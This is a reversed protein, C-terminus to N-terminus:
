KKSLREIRSLLQTLISLDDKGLYQEMYDQAALWFSNAKQLTNRGLDTLELQRNRSGKASADIILGRMELPRINRVLTTRDLRITSALDSVSVPGLQMINKLLAYQSIKLGSPELFQDYVETIAQSARRLNICNCVSPEKSSIKREM